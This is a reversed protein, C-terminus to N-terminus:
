TLLDSVCTATLNDFLSDASSTRQSHTSIRDKLKCLDDRFPRVIPRSAAERAYQFRAPSSRYNWPRDDAKEDRSSKM